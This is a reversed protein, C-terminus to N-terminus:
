FGGRGGRFQALSDWRTGNVGQGVQGVAGTGRPVKRIGKILLVAACEIGHKAAARMRNLAGPTREADRTKGRPM